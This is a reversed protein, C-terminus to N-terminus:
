RRRSSNRGPATTLKAQERAIALARKSSTPEVAVDVMRGVSTKAAARLAPNLIIFFRGWRHGIWGEFPAGNVTGRVLWGERRPDIKIPPVGWVDQPDFPVIVPTVGKHGEILEARFRQQHQAM